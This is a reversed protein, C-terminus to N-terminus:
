HDVQPSSSWSEIGQLPLFKKIKVVTYLGVPAWGVEQRILVPPGKGWPYLTQTMFSVSM